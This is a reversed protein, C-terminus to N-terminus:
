ILGEDEFYYKIKSLLDEKLSIPVLSKGKVSLEDVLDEMTVRELGKSRILHKCHKKLEEKWGSEILKQRLYNELRAEEGSEKLKEELFQKREKLSPENKEFPSNEKFIFDENKKM